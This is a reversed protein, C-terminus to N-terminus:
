SMGRAEGATLVDLLALAASRVQGSRLDYGVKPELTGGMERELGDMLQLRGLSGVGRAAAVISPASAYLNDDLPRLYHSLLLHYGQDYRALYRVCFKFIRHGTGPNPPGGEHCLQALSAAFVEPNDQSACGLAFYLDWPVMQGVLQKTRMDVESSEPWADALALLPGYARSMAPAGVPAMNLLEAFTDGDRYHAALIEAAVAETEDTTGDRYHSRLVELCKERLLLSKPRVTAIFRLLNSTIRLASDSEIKLLLEQALLPYEAAVISLTDWPLGKRSTVHDVLRTELAPGFVERLRAWHKALCHLLPYNVVGFEELPVVSETGGEYNEKIDQFVDIRDLELLGCFAAQREAAQDMGYSVVGELLEAVAGVTDEGSRALRRHFAISAKTKVESDHEHGYLRLQTKAFQDAVPRDALATVICDRLRTPLPSLRALIIARIEPDGSFAEAVAIDNGSARGLEDVALSRVRPDDSFALVIRGALEQSHIGQARMFHNLALTCAEVNGHTAGINALGSLVFDPRRCQENALMQMLLERCEAKDEIVKPLLYAIRAGSNIDRALRMLNDRVEADAMGWGELLGYAPWHIFGHQANLSKLLKAKGKPSRGAIVAMALDPDMVNERDMWVEIAASIADNGKFNVALLQWGIAGGHIGLFPFQEREIRQALVEALEPDNPFAQLITRLAADQEFHKSRRVDKLAALCKEKLAPSYIWGKTLLQPIENRLEYNLGSNWGAFEILSELDKSTHESIAIRAVIASWQLAPSASNTAAALAKHLANHTPWGAALAEIAVSRALHNQDFRCVRALRDGVDNNGASRRVIALAAARQNGLEEDYLGRWIAEFLGEEDGWTAVAGYLYPRWRASPFWQSVKRRIRDGLPSQRMGRLIRSLVRERHPLWAGTEVLEIARDLLQRAISPPLNYDGVAAETLLAELDLQEVRSPRLSQMEQIFKQADERRSTLRLLGLLVEHWRVDQGHERIARLQLELPLRALHQAALYEQLSRHFFGIERDSRRVLLGTSAGETEVLERAHRRAETTGFGLGDESKLYEEVIAIAAALEITGESYDCQLEYALNALVRAADDPALSSTEGIGAVERRRQPHVTILHRLLEDYAKFRDAPLTVNNLKLFVLLSLLLPVKALEALEPSSLEQMLEDVKARCRIQIENSDARDSECRIWRGIWESALERQQNLDFDALEGVPWDQASLSLSSVGAPRGVAVVPPERQRVFLALRQGAINAAAPTSWEDLGDVLLLLRKDNLAQDVLPWLREEEHSHLWKRLLDVLSTDTTQPDAILRTWLAFPIWVPLRGGWQTALRHLKPSDDLMDLALFRLLSTKGLGFDAVVITREAALLWSELPVRQRRSLQRPARPPSSRFNETRSGEETPPRNSTEPAVSDSRQSQYIGPLVYREYVSLSPAIRFAAAPLGPDHVLFLNSYFARLDHRFKQVESADLRRGLNLAVEEGCFLKVWQRGFFDDVLEPQNKLLEDLAGSDWPTLTIAKKSLENAQREFEQSRQTPKLSERTCVVLEKASNAWDGGLFKEVAARIKAPGFEKENKCQYVRYQGNMLRAYLDIGAQDQGREGYLQARVVDSENRACRLCLREFDEWRLSEYPLGGARTEVPPPIESSSPTSLYSPLADATIVM